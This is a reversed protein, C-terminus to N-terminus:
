PYHKFVGQCQEEARRLQHRVMLTMIVEVIPELMKRIVAIEENEEAQLVKFNLAEVGYFDLTEGTKNNKFYLARNNNGYLEDYDPHKIHCIVYNYPNKEEEENYLKQLRVFRYCRTEFIINKFGITLWFNHKRLRKGKM